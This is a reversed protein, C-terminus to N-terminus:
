CTQKATKPHLLSSNQLGKNHLPLKQQCIEDLIVDRLAEECIDNIKPEIFFRKHKARYLASCFSNQKRYSFAILLHIQPSKPLISILAKVIVNGFDPVGYLEL